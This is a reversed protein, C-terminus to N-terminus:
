PDIVKVRGHDDLPLGFYMGVVSHRMIGRSQVSLLYARVQGGDPDVVALSVCGECQVLRLCLEKEQEKPEYITIKM